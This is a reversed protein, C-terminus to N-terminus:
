SLVTKNKEKKGEEFYIIFLLFFYHVSREERSQTVIKFFFFLVVRSRLSREKNKKRKQKRGDKSRERRMKRGKEEGDCSTLTMEIRFNSEGVKDEKKGQVPSMEWTVSDVFKRM